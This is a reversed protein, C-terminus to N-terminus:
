RHGGSGRGREHGARGWRDQPGYRGHAPLEYQGHAPPGYRGHAPPESAPAPPESAPPKPAHTPPKPAPAPAPPTTRAPKPRVVSVQRPAVERDPRVAETRYGRGGAAGGVAWRQSMASDDRTKLVLAAGKETSDPTLALEQNWRPVLTGQLTFDYRVNAADRRSTAECPGLRIAFSLRSNLCLGPDAGSRLLGDAEYAWQQTAASTCPTTETEAGVGAKGGVIDLCLGNAANRLRGRPTGDQSGGAGIWSPESGPATTNDAGPATSPTDREYAADDAGGSPLVSAVAVSVLVCGSVTAAAVVLLRGRTVSRRRRRAAPRVAQRVASRVGSPVEPRAKWWPHKRASHRPGGGRPPDSSVPPTHAAPDPEPVRRGPRSDLYEWAGWGLVAEALLVGPRGTSHDLQDAAQRCHECRALHQRLDPDLWTDGRHLSVDLLRSYQRCEEEPATECHADLCAQRWRQRARELEAPAGESLGLLGAPVALQEAEVETHWLLCRATEPLQQFARFVLRRNEPPRHRGDTRGWEGPLARLGPHLLAGRPGTNWEEAIGRVTALVRPRWATAPATRRLAEGFLRTFAASTLIGAPHASTTCLSAYSFAAEWHRGLLEGVPHHDDLKGACKQLEATLQEDTVGFLPTPTLFHAPDADNM